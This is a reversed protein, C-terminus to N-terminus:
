KKFFSGLLTNFDISEDQLPQNFDPRPLEFINQFNKVFLALLYEPRIEFKPRILFSSLESNQPCEELIPVHFYLEYCRNKLAELDIANRCYARLGMNSTVVLPIKKQLLGASEHKRDILM